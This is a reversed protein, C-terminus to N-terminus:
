RPNLDIGNVECTLIFFKELVQAGNGIAMMPIIKVLVSGGDLHNYYGINLRFVRSLTKIFNLYNNELKIPFDEGITKNRIKVPKIM